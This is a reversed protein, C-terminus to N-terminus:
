VIEPSMVFCLYGAPLISGIRELKLSVLCMKIDDVHPHNMHSTTTCMDRASGISKKFIVLTRWDNGMRVINEVKHEVSVVAGPSTKLLTIEIAERIGPINRHRSLRVKFRPM